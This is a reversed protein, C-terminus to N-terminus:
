EEEKFLDDTLADTERRDKKTPRGTGRDRKLAPAHFMSKFGYTEEEPTIDKYKTVAIKAEVRNYLLEVVEIVKKEIGKSVQYVDGPKVVASAKLNQGNFKIRGAKCAETALSRTKFLRIAWLYKDIRLKEQEAM